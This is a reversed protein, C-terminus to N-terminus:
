DGADSEGEDEEPPETVEEDGVLRVRETDVSVLKSSYVLAAGTDLVEIRQEYVRGSNTEIRLQYEGPGVDHWIWLPCVDESFEDAKVGDLRADVANILWGTRLVSLRLIPRDDPQVLRFQQEVTAGFYLRLDLDSGLFIGSRRRGTHIVIEVEEEGLEFTVVRRGHRLGYWEYPFPFYGHRLDHPRGDVRVNRVSGFGILHGDTAVVFDPTSRPLHACGGFTLVMLLILVVLRM